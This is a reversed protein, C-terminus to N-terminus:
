TRRHKLTPHALRYAFAVAARGPVVRVPDSPFQEQWDRAFRHADRESMWNSAPWLPGREPQRQSVILVRFALPEPTHATAM